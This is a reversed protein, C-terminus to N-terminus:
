WNRYKNNIHEGWAINTIKVENKSWCKSLSSLYVSTEWPKKMSKRNRNSKENFITAITAAEMFSEKYQALHDIGQAIVSFLMLCFGLLVAFVIFVCFSSIIVSLDSGYTVSFNSAMWLSKYISDSSSNTIAKSQSANKRGIKDNPM